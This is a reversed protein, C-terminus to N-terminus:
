LNSQQVTHVATTRPLTRVTSGDDEGNHQTRLVHNESSTFLSDDAKFNYMLTSMSTSFDAGDHAPYGM